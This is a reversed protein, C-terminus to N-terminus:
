KGQLDVGLQKLYERGIQVTTLASCGRMTTGCEGVVFDADVSDVGVAATWERRGAGTTSSPSATLDDRKNSSGIVPQINVKTLGSIACFQEVLGGPEVSSVRVFICMHRDIWIPLQQNIFVCKLQNLLNDQVANLNLELIQWDNMSIPELTISSAQPVNRYIQKISTLDHEKLGLQQAYTCNLYLSNNEASTPM